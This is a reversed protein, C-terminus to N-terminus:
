HHINNFKYQEFVKQTDLSHLYNSLGVPSFPYLLFHSMVNCQFMTMYSTKLYKIENKMGELPIFKFAFSSSSTPM